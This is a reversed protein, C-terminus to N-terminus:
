DAKLLWEIAGDESFMFDVNTRGSMKMISNMFIRKTGDFGYLASRRIYKGNFRMFDAVIAKLSSDFRVREINTVAYLTDPAYKMIVPKITAIRTQFESSNKLDSFNMHIFCKGELAFERYLELEM